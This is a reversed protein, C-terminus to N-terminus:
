PVFQTLYYFKQPGTLGVQPYMAWIADFDFPILHGQRYSTSNLFLSQM